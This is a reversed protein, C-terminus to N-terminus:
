WCAIPLGPFVPLKETLATDRVIRYIYLSRTKYLRDPSRLELLFFKRDAAASGSAQQRKAKLWPRVVGHREGGNQNM